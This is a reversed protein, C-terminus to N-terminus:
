NPLRSPQDNGPNVAPTDRRTLAVGALVILMGLVIQPTIHDSLIAAGLIIAVIPLVYNVVSATTGLDTILRYNLIYAIGTGLVGLIVLALVADWRWHIAQLGDFPTVVALLVSAMILQGASLAVPAIGQRALFRDMYVYSVGYSASAAICALGGFSAIQSGSHWPSFILLTGAMGVVFGAVKSASIRREHGSVYALALTWLPTTANLVGAASSTVHQEAVAFLTYPIANAFLAAITLHLWTRRGSPLPIHRARAILVLVAAGLALRILVIQVPSFSRLAIVIWFFGSGWLLSLAALRVLSSGRISV